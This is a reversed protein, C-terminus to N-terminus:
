PQTLKTCQFPLNLSQAHSALCVRCKEISRNKLKLSPSGLLFSSKYLKRTFEPLMTVLTPESHWLLMHARTTLYRDAYLVHLWRLGFAVMFSAPLM